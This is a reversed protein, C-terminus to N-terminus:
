RGVDNWFVQDYYRITRRSCDIRGRLQKLEAHDIGQLAYKIGLYPLILDDQYVFTSVRPNIELLKEGKFQINAFYSLPIAGLICEAYRELDPRDVTLFSMALGTNIADRTKAMGLLIEGSDALVDVTFERGDVYEMLLLRPFTDAHSFIDIFHRLTMFLTNPRENLLLDAENVHESLIRFGRGGKSVPPKFCVPIEPYGLLQAGEVFEDLTEPYLVQPMPVDISDLAQYMRAKDVCLEIAEIESVLVPIGLEEFEHKHRALEPVEYSSQPLVVDPSEKKAIALMEPIYDPHTAPPVEHFRDAMFRGIADARMDVAIIHLPREGNARLMRILTAAGPCGAATLLVKLPRSMWMGRRHRFNYVEDSKCSTWWVALLRVVDGPQHEQM